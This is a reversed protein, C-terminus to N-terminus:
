ALFDHGFNNDFFRHEGNFAEIYFAANGSVPFQYHWTTTKAEDHSDMQQADIFAKTKWDDHSYHIRVKDAHIDASVHCCGIISEGVTPLLMRHFFYNYVPLAALLVGDSQKLQYRQGHNDDVFEQGSVRYRIEFRFPESVPLNGTAWIERGEDAMRSFTAPYERWIGDEDECLVNVTKSFALNEVLITVQKEKAFQQKQRGEFNYAALLEVENTAKLAGQRILRRYEGPTCGHWEKFAKYFSSQEKFGLALAVEHASIQQNALLRLAMFHRAQNLLSRFSTHYFQLTRQLSRPSVNMAMATDNLTPVQPLKRIMEKKLLEVPHRSGELEKVLHTGYSKIISSINPLVYQYTCDLVRVDVIIRDENKGWSRKVQDASIWHAKHQHEIRNATFEQSHFGKQRHYLWLLLHEIIEGDIGPAQLTISFENSSEHLQVKVHFMMLAIHRAWRGIGRRFTPASILLYDLLRLGQIVHYDGGGQLPFRNDQILTHISELHQICASELPYKM